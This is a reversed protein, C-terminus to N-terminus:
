DHDFNLILHVFVSEGEHGEEKIVKILSPDIYLITQAETQLLGSLLFTLATSSDFYMSSIAEVLISEGLRAVVKESKMSSFLCLKELEARLNKTTIYLLEICKTKIHM